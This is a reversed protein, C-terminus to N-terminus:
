NVLYLKVARYQTTSSSFLANCRILYESLIAESKVTLLCISQAYQHSKPTVVFPLCFAIPVTYKSLRNVDSLHKM